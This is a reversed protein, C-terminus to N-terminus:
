DEDTDLWITVPGDNVLDVEMMRGFQGSQVNLDFEDLRDVFRDCMREAGGPDMADVFSPRRGRSTDAYLTFQPVVLIEAGVDLVSHNMKGDEDAFIRLHVVTDVLQELDEDDDDEGVGVFVLLGHDIAGVTSDDVRVEAGDVRQLLARM